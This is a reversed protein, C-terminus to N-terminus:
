KGGPAGQQQTEQMFAKLPNEGQNTKVFKLFANSRKLNLDHAKFVRMVQRIGETAAAGEPQGLWMKQAAMMAARTEGLWLLLAIRQPMQDDPLSKMRERLVEAQVSPLKVQALPNLKAGDRQAEAFAGLSKGGPEVASWVSVLTRSAREVADSEYPALMFRLRAWGLAEEGRKQKILAETLDNYLWDYFQIPGGLLSPFQLLMERLAAIQEERGASTDQQKLADSFAQLAPMAVQQWGQMLQERHARVLAAAEAPQRANLLAWAKDAVLDGMAPHTAYRKIGWDWLEHAKAANRLGTLYLQAMDRVVRIGVFPALAPRAMFQRYQALAAAPDTKELEANAQRLADWAKQDREEPNVNQTVNAVAGEDVEPLGDPDNQAAAPPAAAPAFLGACSLILLLFTRPFRRALRM